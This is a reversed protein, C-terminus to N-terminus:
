RGAPAEQRELTESPGAIVTVIEAVIDAMGRWFLLRRVPALVRFLEGNAYVMAIETESTEVCTFYRSVLEPHERVLYDAWVSRFVLKRADHREAEITHCPLIGVRYEGPMLIRDFQGDRLLM